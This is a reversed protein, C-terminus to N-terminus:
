RARSRNFVNLMNLPPVASSAPASGFDAVAEDVYNLQERYELRDSFGTCRQVALIFEFATAHAAFNLIPFTM